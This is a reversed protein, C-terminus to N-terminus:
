SLNRRWTEPFTTPSRGGSAKRRSAPLEKGPVAEDLLISTKANWFPLARPARLPRPPPSRRRPLPPRALRAGSLRAIGVRPLPLSWPACCLLAWFFRGDLFATCGSGLGALLLARSCTRALRKRSRSFWAQASAGAVTGSLDGLDGGLASPSALWSLITGAGRKRVLWSRSLPEFMTAHISAASRGSTAGSSSNRRRLAAVSALALACSVVGPSAAASLTKGAAGLSVTSPTVRMEPPLFVVAAGVWLVSSIGSVSLAKWLGVLSVDGSVGHASDSTSASSSASVVATGASSAAM